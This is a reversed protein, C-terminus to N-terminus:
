KRRRLLARTDLGFSPDSPTGKIKIPIASGNGGKKTFLPDVAKLILRKWGKQTESIKADILLVGKFDLMEPRLRYTGALQVRAGPAYFTLM